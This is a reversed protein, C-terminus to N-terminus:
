SPNLFLLLVGEAAFLSQADSSNLTGSAPPPMVVTPVFPAKIEAPGATAGADRVYGLNRELAIRALKADRLGAALDTTERVLVPVTLPLMFTNAPDNPNFPAAPQYRFQGILFSTSNRLEEVTTIGHLAMFGQLDFFPM